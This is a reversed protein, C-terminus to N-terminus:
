TTHLKDYHLGHDVNLSPSHALNIALFVLFHDLFLIKFTVEAHPSLQCPSWAMSLVHTYVLPSGRMESAWKIVSGRSLQSAEYSTQERHRECVFSNQPREPM